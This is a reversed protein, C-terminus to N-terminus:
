SPRIRNENSSPRGSKGFHHRGCRGCRPHGSRNRPRNPAIGRSRGWFGQDGLSDPQLFLGGMQHFINMHRRDIEDKRYVKGYCMVGLSKGEAIKAKVIEEIESESMMKPLFQEIFALEAKEGEALDERGGSVFQDIADKRQKVARKLVNLADEDSIPEQPMQGKNVLENTFGSIIGRLAMTAVSDKALM